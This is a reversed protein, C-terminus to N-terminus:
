FMLPLVSVAPIIGVLLWPSLLRHRLVVLVGVMTALGWVVSMVWLGVAAGPAGQGEEIFPSIGALPITIGMGVILIVTSAVWQQVRTLSMSPRQAQRARPPTNLDLLHKSRHQPPEGPGPTQDGM